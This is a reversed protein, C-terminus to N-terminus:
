YGMDYARTNLEQITEVLHAFMENQGHFHLFGLVQADKESLPYPGSEVEFTFDDGEVVQHASKFDAGWIGDADYGSKVTVKVLNKM